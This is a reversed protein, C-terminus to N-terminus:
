LGQRGLGLWDQALGVPGFLKGIYRKVNKTHKFLYRQSREELTKMVRNNGFGRNRRVRRPKNGPSLDDFMKLLGPQTHKSTHEYGAHVEAGMVLRLDAM